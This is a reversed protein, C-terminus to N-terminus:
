QKFINGQGQSLKDETDSEVHAKCGQVLQQILAPCLELFTDVDIVDGESINFVKM